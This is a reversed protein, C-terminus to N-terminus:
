RAFPMQARSSELVRDLANLWVPPKLEVAGLVPELAQAVYALDVEADTLGTPALQSFYQM